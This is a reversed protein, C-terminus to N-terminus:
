SHWKWVSSPSVRRHWREHIHSSSINITTPITNSISTSPNGSFFGTIVLRDANIGTTNFVLGSVISNRIVSGSSGSNFSITSKHYCRTISVPSSLTWTGFGCRDIVVGTLNSHVTLNGDIGILTTGSASGLLADNRLDLSLSVRQPNVGPIGNENHLFGPGIITLRKYVSGGSYGNGSGAILITDGDSAAAYAEPFNAYMANSGPRNDVTLTAAKTIAAPVLLILLSSLITKM